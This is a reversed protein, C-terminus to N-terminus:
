EGRRYMMAILAGSILAIAPISAPLPATQQVPQQELVSGPTCGWLCMRTASPPLTINFRAERQTDSSSASVIIIYEDYALDPSGVRYSWTNKGRSGEKIIVTGVSGSYFMGKPGLTHNPSYINVLIKNGPSINTTGTITFEEHVFHSGIPDIAIDTSDVTRGSGPCACFGCVVLVILLRSIGIFGGKKPSM